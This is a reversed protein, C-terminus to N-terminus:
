EAKERKALVVDFGLADAWRCLNEVTPDSEGGEWRAVSQHTKGIKEALSAQTRKQRVRAGSLGAVIRMRMEGPTM